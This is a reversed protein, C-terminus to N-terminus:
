CCGNGARILLFRRAARRLFAEFTAANVGKKLNLGVYHLSFVPQTSTTM